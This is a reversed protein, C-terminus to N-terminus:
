NTDRGSKNSMVVAIILSGEPSGFGALLDKSYYGYNTKHLLTTCGAM